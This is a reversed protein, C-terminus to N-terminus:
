SNNINTNNENNEQISTKQINNEKLVDNMEKGYIRHIHKTIAEMKNGFVLRSHHGVAYFIDTRVNDETRHQKIQRFLYNDKCFQQIQKLPDDFIKM